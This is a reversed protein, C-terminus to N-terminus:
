HAFGWTYFSTTAGFQTGDCGRNERSQPRRKGKQNRKVDIIESPVKPRVGHKFEISEETLPYDKCLPHGQWNDPMLIRRLNPHGTFQVGFLDFLEREYWDAGEWLDTVSPLKEGRKAFVFLRVRQYNIPNHLWYVVQTGKEPELYDVGTLDMLVEYGPEPVQKFFLLVEILSDKHIELTMEGCFNDERLVASPLKDKLRVIAEVTKM